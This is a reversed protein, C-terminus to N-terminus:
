KAAPKNYTGDPSSAGTHPDGVSSARGTQSDSVAQEVAANVQAATKLDDASEGAPIEVGSALDTGEGAVIAAGARQIDAYNGVIGSTPPALARVLDEVTADDLNDAVPITIYRVGDIQQSKSKTNDAM